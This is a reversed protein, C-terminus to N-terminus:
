WLLPVLRYRVKTQYESYGPLNRALFKEENLLRWLILLTFPVLALLGWWSGLALPVGLQMVIAGSYMPHRIMAYPGTSVVKQGENIEVTGSAYSNERFVFFIFAFGAVVLFDGAISVYAPARSWGLRRDVVPVLIAALFAVVILGHIIKQTLGKEATPGGRVRREFLAPDHKMVYLTIGFAPAFFACLFVWAQWYRLTWAPLFLLAALTIFLRLFGGFAKKNLENM